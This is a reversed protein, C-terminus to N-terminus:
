LYKKYNALYRRYLYKLFEWESNKKDAKRLAKYYSIRKKHEIILIPYNNKNLIFNMILRSIRGNGDGFPHIRVFRFHAKAALEVPHLIDKNKNYWKFFEKLLESLDKWDPCIYDGVRVLYHRIEGAIDPKSEYFLEKHWKKILDLSLEKYKNELINDFIKAHNLTEQIDSLPKNPSIKRTLLEETEELTITSGEIANTNYTFNIILEKKTKEKISKPYKKWEKKFNQKIKDFKKFLTKGQIQRLFKEKIQEINNPIKKGIYKEKTIVKGDKKYSFQLYYYGHKKTIRM